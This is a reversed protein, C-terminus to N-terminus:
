RSAADNCTGCECRRSRHASSADCVSSLEKPRCNIPTKACAPFGASDAASTLHRLLVQRGNRYSGTPTRLAGARVARPKPRPCHRSLFGHSFEECRRASRIGAPSVRGHRIPAARPFSVGFGTLPRFVHEQHARARTLSTRAQRVVTSRHSLDDGQRRRRVATVGAVTQIVDRHLAASLLITDARRGFVPTRRLAFLFQSTSLRCSVRPLKAVADHHVAVPEHLRLQRTDGLTQAEPDLRSLVRSPLPSHRSRRPEALDRRCARQLARRSDGDPESWPLIPGGGPPWQVLPIGRRRLGSAVTQAARKDARRSPM